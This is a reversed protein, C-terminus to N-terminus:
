ASEGLGGDNFVLRALVELFQDVLVHRADGRAVGDVEFAQGM